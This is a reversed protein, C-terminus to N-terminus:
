TRTLKEKRFDFEFQLKVGNEDPNVKTIKFNKSKKLATAEAKYSGLKEEIDYHVNSIQVFEFGTLPISLLAPLEPDAYIHLAKETQNTYISADLTM